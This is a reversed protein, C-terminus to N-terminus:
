NLIWGGRSVRTIYDGPNPDFLIDDEDRLGKVYGARYKNMDVGCYTLMDGWAQLKDISSFVPTFTKFPSSLSQVMLYTLRLQGEKGRNTETGVKYIAWGNVKKM